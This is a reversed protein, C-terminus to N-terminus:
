EGDVVSFDVNDFIYKSREETKPGLLLNLMNIAAPVDNRTFKVLRAKEGFAAEAFADPDM